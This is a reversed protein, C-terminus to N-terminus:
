DLEGVLRRPSAPAEALRRLLAEQPTRAEFPLRGTLLEYLVVGFAYIDAPTGAAQGLVQEPAMYDPTGGFVSAETEEPEGKVRRRGSSLQALGFDTVVVREGGDGGEGVEEVVMVNGSKFDHHVIGARHSASLGAAMQEVLPLAESMTLRGRRGVRERLTEGRLLEMTLFWIAESGEGHRGLDYVRCVHPHSISRALLVEQKLRRVAQEEHMLDARLTKLAVPLGLEEDQTEYVEGM